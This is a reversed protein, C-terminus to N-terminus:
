GRQAPKFPGPNGRQGPHKVVALRSARLWTVCLLRIIAFCVERPIDADEVCLSMKQVLQDPQYGAARNTGTPSRQGTRGSAQLPLFMPFSASSAGIGARREDNSPERGPSETYSRTSDRLSRAVNAPMPSAQGFTETTMGARFSARLRGCTKAFSGAPSCSTMTTSPFETSSVTAVARRSRGPTRITVWFRQPM